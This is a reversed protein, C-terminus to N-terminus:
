NIKKLCEILSDRWHKIEINQNTKVKTKDLVSFSPRKAKTKFETSAIPSVRISNNTYEFIAKAFDYWSSIGENSYHYVGHKQSESEIIHIIFKALDIAYTPTSIQDNVVNLSEKEKGLRLMTKAFNNGFESYLWSTRIIFYKETTKQIEQEGQFKSLGYYNIPKCIDDEKMLSTKNGEFVFDTSIHILNSTYRKCLVAINKAGIVNIIYADEKCDEALDVQTYAACNIIYKPSYKEFVDELLSLKTIDSEEKSLFVFSFATSKLDTVISKLSQGLQGNAGFILVNNKM